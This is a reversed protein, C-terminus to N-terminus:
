ADIPNPHAPPNATTATTTPAPPHSLTKHYIAHMREAVRQWTCHDHVQQRGQRGLQRAEAPDAALRRIADALAAPSREPVVLGGAGVVEPIGGSDSGIVPVGCAQAEILVRGFQEKWRPTTRSPLALVDCANFLEPLQEPSRPGLWHVRDAVGRAEAQARFDAEDTGDGALVLRMPQPTRALADILDAIGKAQVLRGVYGVIFGDLGLARRAAARELPRFRSVDVANPVVEAPGTYGKARLVEVAERSRGVAYDAHRLTSRRFAEFPPPLRKNINQETESVIRAGPRHRDRVRCAQVSVLSWPEEWLDIVDPEFERVVRALGPYWHLYSQAPGLWPWRVRGIEYEFRDSLPQEAERWRGYRKWRQPVLVRLEVDGLRALCDAKPQGETRSQCTHSILLIRM